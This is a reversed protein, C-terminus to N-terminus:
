PQPPPAAEVPAVTAFAPNHPDVGVDFCLHHLLAETAEIKEVVTGAMVQKSPVRSWSRIEAQVHHFLKDMEAARLRVLERDGKHESGSLYKAGLLLEYAERYVDRFNKNHGYNYHMDLCLANTELSLRGALDQFRNFGGLDFAVTKQVEVVTAQSALPVSTIPRVTYPTYFHSSGISYYAGHHGQHHPVVYQWTNHGYNAGHHSPLHTSHHGDGHTSFHADLHGGTQHSTHHGGLQHGLHGGGGHHHQSYAEGVFVLLAFCLLITTLVSKM